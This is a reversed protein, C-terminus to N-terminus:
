RDRAGSVTRRLLASLFRQDSLQPLLRTGNCPATRSVAFVEVLDAIRQAGPTLPQEPGTDTSM